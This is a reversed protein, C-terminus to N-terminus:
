TSKEKEKFSYLFFYLLVIWFSASLYGGRFMNLLVFLIAFPTNIYILIGTFVLLPIFGVIGFDSLVYAFNNTIVPTHGIGNGLIWNNSGIYQWSEFLRNTTSPDQGSIIRMTRDILTLFIFEWFIFLIALSAVLYVWYYRRWVISNNKVYIVAYLFLVILLGLIMSYSLTSVIGLILFVIIPKNLKYGTKNFMNAALIVLLFFGFHAPESFLSRTRIISPNGQFEYSTPHSRTFEWFFEYPLLGESYIAFTIYLGTLISILAVVTSIKLFKGELRRDKIFNYVSTTALLYFLIKIFQSALLSSSVSVGNQVLLIINLMSILIPISLWFAQKRRVRINATIILLGLIFAFIFDAFSFGGHLFDSLLFALSTLVLIVYELVSKSNKLILSSKATDVFHSIM